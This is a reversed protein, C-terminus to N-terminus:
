ARSLHLLLGAHAGGSRDLRMAGICIILCHDGLAGTGCEEGERVLQYLKYPLEIEM